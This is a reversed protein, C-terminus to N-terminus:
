SLNQEARRQFARAMRDLEAQKDESLLHPHHGDLLKRAADNARQRM